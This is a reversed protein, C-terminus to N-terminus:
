LKSRQVPKAHMREELTKKKPAEPAMKLKEIAALDRAEEGTPAAEFIEKREMANFDAEIKDIDGTTKQLM